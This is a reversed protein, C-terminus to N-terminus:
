FTTELGYSTLKGDLQQGPLLTQKEDKKLDM